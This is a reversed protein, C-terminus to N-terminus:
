NNDERKRDQYAPATSSENSTSYFIPWSGGIIPYSNMIKTTLVWYIPKMYSVQFAQGM